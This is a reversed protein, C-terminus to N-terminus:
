QPKTTFSFKGQPVGIREPHFTAPDFNKNKQPIVAKTDALFGDILTDLEKVKDPNSAALNKTEGIDDKLNYLYYGEQGYHFLRILKWDGCNVAVSAPLWDPVRFDHPFYTFIAKRDLAKGKLAPTIDIGDVPYDKPMSIGLRHLLTPYFDTTQIVQDSVTGSQTLGPWAIICPVRIGGEFLTAKGARLPANSTTPVGDLRAYQCGGNDSIFIIVTRDAIGLQDITDLLAGVADDMAEVMAAYTPSRQPYNPDVKKRYKKIVEPKGNWPSHVSFQWYNLYFPKKQAVQEKMWSIAEQAMRDELNESPSNEQLLPLKWPPMYGTPPGGGNWHPVDVDFGQQLPSYPDSGLHWKGFHGMAYGAQKLVKGLTPGETSLRSASTVAVSKWEKSGKPTEDPASATLRVEEKHAGAETLGFRAPNQGTIISGRTPSCVPCASYAHTFVMGRAALRELNPTEYFQSRHISSLSTDSWGLDDALIFVINLNGPQDQGKSLLTGVTLITYLFTGRLVSKVIKYPPFLNM